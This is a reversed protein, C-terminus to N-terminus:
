LGIILPLCVCGAALPNVSHIMWCSIPYTNGEPTGWLSQGWMSEDADDDNLFFGMKQNHWQVCSPPLCLKEMVTCWVHAPHVSRESVSHSTKMKHNWQIWLSPASSMLLINRTINSISFFFSYKTLAALSPVLNPFDRNLYLEPTSFNPCLVHCKVVASGHSRVKKPPNLLSQLLYLHPLDGTLRLCSRWLARSQVTFPFEPLSFHWRLM